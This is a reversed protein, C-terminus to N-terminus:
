REPFLYEHEKLLERVRDAVEANAILLRSHRGFIMQYLAINAAYETRDYRIAPAYVVRDTIM